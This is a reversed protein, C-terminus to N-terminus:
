IIFASTLIYKEVPSYPPHSFLLTGIESKQNIIPFLISASIFDRLSFDMKIVHQQLVPTSLLVSPLGAITITHCRVPSAFVPVDAATSIATECCSMMPCSENDTGKTMPCGSDIVQMFGTSAFFVALSLGLISIRHFLPTQMM